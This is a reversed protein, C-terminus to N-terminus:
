LLVKPYQIEVGNPLKGGPSPIFKGSSRDYQLSIEPSFDSLMIKTIQSTITTVITNSKLQSQPWLYITNMPMWVVKFKYLTTLASVPYCTFDEGNINANQYLGFTLHGKDNAYDNFISYTGPIGGPSAAGFAGSPSMTYIKGTEAPFPTQANQFIMNGNIIETNSAYIGYDETWTMENKNLPRYVLWAVNPDFGFFSKAVVINTGTLFFIELDENTFSTYLKFTTM